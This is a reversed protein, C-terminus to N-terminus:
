PGRSPVLEDGRRMYAPMSSPGIGGAASVHLGRGADAGTVLTAASRTRRRRQTGHERKEGERRGGGGGRLGRPDAVVARDQELAAGLCTALGEGVAGRVRRAVPVQEDHVGVAVALTRQDGRGEVVERRRPRGVSPPDHEDTVV